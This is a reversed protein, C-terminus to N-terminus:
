YQEFFIKEGNVWLNDLRRRVDCVMQASWCIYFEHYAFINEPKLFDVVYWKRYKFIDERSLYLLYDFNTYENKLKKLENEYFLDEEHRVWFILKMNTKSWSELASRIQFYLPAFWTWTWVFLKPSEPDNLIFNWAPWCYSIELWEEFNCIERSWWRWEDLRKIIFELNKWNKYAVSYARRLGSPLIFTLFQWPIIDIESESVFILEYVNHTLKAIKSLIIKNLIM